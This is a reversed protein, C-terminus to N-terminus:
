RPEPRRRFCEPHESGDGAGDGGGSRGHRGGHAALCGGIDLTLLPNGTPTPEDAFVDLGAGAIQGSTLAAYLAAEDIIGGRATNVIIAGRRTRALRAADFLGITEPSKPCHISIFDARTVAADLDGVPECGAAIIRGRDQYPDYVLVTMDFALCRKATRTGIRGFGVILM